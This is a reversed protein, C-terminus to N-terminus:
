KQLISDSDVSRGRKINIGMKGSGNKEPKLIVWEKKSKEKARIYVVISNIGLYKCMPHEWLLMWIESEFHFCEYYWPCDLRSVLKLLHRQRSRVTWDRVSGCIYKMRNALRERGEPASILYIVSFFKVTFHFLQSTYVWFLLGELKTIYLEKAIFDLIINSFCKALKTKLGPELLSATHITVPTAPVVPIELLCCHTESVQKVQSMASGVVCALACTRHTPVAIAFVTIGLWEWKYPQIVSIPFCYLPLPMAPRGVHSNWESSSATPCGVVPPISGM